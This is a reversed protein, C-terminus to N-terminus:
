VKAPQVAQIAQGAEIPPLVKADTADTVTEATPKPAPTLARGVLVIALGLGVGAAGLLNPNKVVFIPKADFLAFAFTQVKDYLAVFLLASSIGSAAIWRASPRRELCGAIVAPCAAAAFAYVGSVGLPWILAPPYAAVIGTLAAVVVTAIRGALLMSSPEPSKGQNVLRAIPAVVDNAVTTGLALFLANLTGIGVAVLVVGVLGALGAPFTTAVWTAVAQDPKVATALASKAALGAFLAPIGLLCFLTGTAVGVKPLAKADKVYLAKVIIHPQCALAFGIVLPYFFVSAQDSFFVSGERTLDFLKSDTQHLATWAAGDNAAFHSGARWAFLGATGLLLLGKAYNTSAHAHTGGFVTLLLVITVLGFTAYGAGHEVNALGLTAVSVNVAGVLILVSYSFLLLSLIAYLSRVRSSAFREGIWAPLTLVRISGDPGVSTRRLRPGLVVFAAGIGLAVPISFGLLAPLGEMYVLGPNIAFTATSTLVAAAVVATSFVGMDSGGAAFSAFSSTKQAGKWSLYAIAILYVAFFAIAWAATTM